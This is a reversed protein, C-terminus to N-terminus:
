AITRFNLIESLSCLASYCYVTTSIGFHYGRMAGKDQMCKGM